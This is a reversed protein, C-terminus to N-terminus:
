IEAVKMKDTKATEEIASSNFITMPDSLVDVRYEKNRWDLLGKMWEDDELTDIITRLRFTNPEVDLLQYFNNLDANSRNKAANRAAIIDTASRIGFSRLKLLDQDEKREGKLIHLYLISQDVWDILTSLPIRTQLMLNILDSHALNEINEIGEEILRTRHYINIGDLRNLPFKETISPIDSKSPMIKKVFEKIATVGTDPFFGVFFAVVLVANSTKAEPLIFQVVWALVVASVTRVTFNAYASPKIDSRAYRRFLLTIGFTYAGLFAYVLVNKTPILYDTLVVGYTSPNDALSVTWGVSVIITTIFIISRNRYLFRTTEGMSDSYGLLADARVGYVSKADQITHISPILLVAARFFEEKLTSLRKRDFLYFMLAPLVSLIGILLVQLWPGVEAAYNGVTKIEKPPEMPKGDATNKITKAQNDKLAKETFETLQTNELIKNATAAGSNKITSQTVKASQEYMAQHGGIIVTAPISFAIVLQLFGGISLKITQILEGITHNKFFDIITFIISGGIAVLTTTTWWTKPINAKDVLYWVGYVFGSYIFVTAWILMVIELTKYKIQKIRDAKIIGASSWKDVGYHHYDKDTFQVRGFPPILKPPQKLAKEELKVPRPTQNCLEWVWNPEAESRTSNKQEKQMKSSFINSIFRSFQSDSNNNGEADMAFDGKSNFDHFGIFRVIPV